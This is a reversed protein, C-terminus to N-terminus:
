TNHGTCHGWYMSTTQQTHWNRYRSNLPASSEVDIHHQVVGLWTAPSPICIDLWDSATWCLTEYTKMDALSWMSWL